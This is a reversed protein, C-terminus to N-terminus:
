QYSSRLYVFITIIVFYVLNDGTIMINVVTWRRLSYVSCLLHMPQIKVRKRLGGSASTTNALIVPQLNEM